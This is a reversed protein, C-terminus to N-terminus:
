REKTDINEIMGQFVLELMGSIYRALDTDYKGTNILMKKKFNKLRTFFILLLEIFPRLNNPLTLLLFPQDSNFTM